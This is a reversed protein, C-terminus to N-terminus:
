EYTNLKKSLIYTRSLCGVFMTTLYISILSSIFSLIYNQNFYTLETAIRGIFWAPIYLILFQYFLTEKAGKSEKFIKRLSIKEGIAIQPLALGYFPYLFVLIFLLMLGIGFQFIILSPFFENLIQSSFLVLLAFFFGLILYLFYFLTVKINKLPSHYSLKDEMIIFRHLNVYYRFYLYVTYISVLISVLGFIISITFSFENDLYYDFPSNPGLIITIFIILPFSMKLYDIFNSNIHKFQAILIESTKM